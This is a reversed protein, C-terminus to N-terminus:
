YTEIITYCHANVLALFDVKQPLPPLTYHGFIQCYDIMNQYCKQFSTSICGHMCISKSSVILILLEFSTSHPHWLNAKKQPYLCHNQQGWLRTAVVRAIQHIVKTFEKQIPPTLLYNNKQFAQFTIGFAM